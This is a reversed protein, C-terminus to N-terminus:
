GDRSTIRGEMEVAPDIPDLVSIPSVLRTLPAGGAKVIPPGENALSLVSPEFGAKELASDLSSRHHVVIRPQVVAGIARRRNDRLRAAWRDQSALARVICTQVLDEAPSADSPVALPTVTCVRWNRRMIESSEPRLKNSLPLYDAPKQVRDSRVQEQENGSWFKTSRRSICVATCQSGICTEATSGASSAVPHSM